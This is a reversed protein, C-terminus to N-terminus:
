QMTYMQLLQPLPYVSCLRLLGDIGHAFFLYKHGPLFLCQTIISQALQEQVKETSFSETSSAQTPSQHVFSSSLSSSANGSSSSCTGFLNLTSLNYQKTLNAANMRLSTKLVGADSDWMDISGDEGATILKNFMQFNTSHLSRSYVSGAASHIQKDNYFTGVSDKFAYLLQDAGDAVVLREAAHSAGHILHYVASLPGKSM